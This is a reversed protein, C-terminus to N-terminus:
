LLFIDRNALAYDAVAQHCADNPHILDAIAGGSDLINYESKLAGSAADTITRADFVRVGSAKLDAIYSDVIARYTTGQGQGGWPQVIIPVIGRQVCLNIIKTCLAIAKKAGADGDGQGNVSWPKIILHTLHGSYIANIARQHFTNAKDGQHALCCYETSEGAAKLATILRRPWGNISGGFTPVATSPTWGMEISDSAVAVNYVAKGRLFYTVTVAPGWGEIIGGGPESATYDGPTKYGSFYDPLFADFEARNASRLRTINYAPPNTGFVRLMLLPNRAPYDTRPLSAISIMDSVLEGEILTDAAASGSANTVTGTTAGGGPNRPNSRDTTGFTVPTWTLTAGAESVPTYGNNYSASPSVAVKMANGNEAGHLTIQVADYDAPATRTEFMTCIISTNTTAAGIRSHAATRRSPMAQGVNSDAVDLLASRGSGIKKVKGTVPDTESTVAAKDDVYLTVLGTADDEVVKTAFDKENRKYTAHRLM